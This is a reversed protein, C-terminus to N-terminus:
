AGRESPSWLVTFPGRGSMALELDNNPNELTSSNAQIAKGFRDVIVSGVELNKLEEVTSIVRSKRADWGSRFGAKWDTEVIENLAGWDCGVEALFATEAVKREEKFRSM